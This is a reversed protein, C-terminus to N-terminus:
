VSPFWLAIECSEIEMSSASSVGSALQVFATFAPTLSHPINALM